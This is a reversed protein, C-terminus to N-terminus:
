NPVKACQQMSGKSQLTHLKCHMIIKLFNNIFVNVNYTICEKTGPSVHLCWNTYM